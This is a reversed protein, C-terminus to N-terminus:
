HIKGWFGIIDNLCFKSLGDGSPPFIQEVFSMDSILVKNPTKIVYDITDTVDSINSKGTVDSIEQIKRLVQSSGSMMYEYGSTSKQTLIDLHKAFALIEKFTELPNSLTPNTLSSILSGNFALCTLVFFNTVDWSDILIYLVHISTGIAQRKWM